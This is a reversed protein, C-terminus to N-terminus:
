FRFYIFPNYTGGVLSLTCLFFLVAMVILACVHWTIKCKETSLMKNKLKTTYNAFIGCFIVGCVAYFITRPDMFEGASWWGGGSTFMRKIYSKAYELSEARFLVWGMIVVFMTYIYNLFKLPNKDLLKGLFLREIIMFFGHYLGWLIFNFGAGHWFGPAFFVILLNIYTRVKGKRNGGLPIYLYDRFWTSLSIHWRRWFNQISTAIYPFNFNELFDFGLMKGLGIAMDSYGSFDYYIQLTYLLAGLWAAGQTLDTPPLAYIQDVVYAVTNSILVKKALGIVFRRIGEAKKSSPAERNKLQAAVDSYRVIPGAILQPFLSIYLALDLINKQVKIERRFLDIIYSLIQFTFFSIGIPLAINKIDFVEAGGFFLNNVSQAIFDYYKFYGLLLLNAVVAVALVIKRAGGERKDMILGLVYNMVISFLMLFVYKPEGWAYFVISAILLVINKGKKPVIWNLLLVVPLFIWLFLMSSFVM